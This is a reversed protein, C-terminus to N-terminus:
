QFWVVTGYRDRDDDMGGSSCIRNNIISKAEYGGGKSYLAKTAAITMGISTDCLRRPKQGMHSFIRRNTQFKQLENSIAEQLRRCRLLIKSRITPLGREIPAVLYSLSQNRV